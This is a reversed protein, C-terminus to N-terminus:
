KFVPRATHPNRELIIRFQRMSDPLGYQVHHLHLAVQWKVCYEEGARPTM